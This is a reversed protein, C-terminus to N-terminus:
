RSFPWVRFLMRGRVDGLSYYGIGRSDQSIQRDDGLLYLKGDPVPERFRSGCNTVTGPRLYPESLPVGNRTVGSRITCAIVDGPLGVVRRFTAVDRVDPQLVMVIDGHRLGSWRPSLRDVLVRDEVAVAPAMSESPQYEVGVVWQQLVAGLVALAAICVGLRRAVRLPALLSRPPASARAGRRERWAVFLGSISWRWAQVPGEAESLEALLAEGWEGGIPARGRVARALLRYPWRMAPPLSPLVPDTPCDGRHQHPGPGGRVAASGSM